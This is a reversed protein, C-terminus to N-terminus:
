ISKRGDNIKINFKTPNDLDEIEEKTLLSIDIDIMITDDQKEVKVNQRNMNKALLSTLNLIFFLKELEKFTPLLVQYEDYLKEDLEEDAFCELLYAITVKEEHTHGFNLYEIWSYFNMNNILLVKSCFEIIKKHECTDCILLSLKKAINQYYTDIKRVEGFRDLLLKLNLDFNAPFVLNFSRLLDSLFVGERVGMQNVCVKKSNLFELAGSLILAGDQITDVRSNSIYKKLKAKDYDLLKDIYKKAQTDKYEYAHLVRYLPYDERKQIYKAIERATGGITVTVESKFDTDLKDLESKIYETKEDVTKFKENLRVHGLQLSATKIVKGNVVKAFETSGGGIDITTFEEYKPLLNIASVAGVFSEKTGDIVKINIGLNKSVRNIFEKKNPADRLASTAVCLTKRVKYAKIINSFDKLAEYAREMPKPQLVGGKEYSGEGIKIKYKERHLQYFALRSTKKYIVLTLSNSGIDIVATIKAM